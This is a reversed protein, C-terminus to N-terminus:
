YSRSDLRYSRFIDATCPQKEAIPQIIFEFTPEYDQYIEIDGNHNIQENSQLTEGGLIEIHYWGNNLSIKPRNLKQHYEKLVKIKQETFNELIRWGFLMLEGSEIKLVYGDQRLQLHNNPKLLEAPEGLNFIITYPYNEIDALPILIGDTVVKNGTDNTTFEQGLNDPLDHKDKYNKLAVIDGLLFYSILENLVQRFVYKM